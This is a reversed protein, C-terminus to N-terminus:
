TGETGLPREEPRKKFVDSLADNFRKGKDLDDNLIELALDLEKM